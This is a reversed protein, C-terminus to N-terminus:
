GTVCKCHSRTLKGREFEFMTTYDDADGTKSVTKWAQSPQVHGLLVGYVPSGRYSVSRVSGQVIHELGQGFRYFSVNQRLWELDPLDLFALYAHRKVVREDDHRNETPFHLRQRVLAYSVKDRFFRSVRRLRLIIPVPLRKLLVCWLAEHAVGPLLPGNQNNMKSRM